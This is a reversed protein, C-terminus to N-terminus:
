RAYWLSRLSRILALAALTGFRACRAYWLSRLSRVLAFRAFAFRAFAFRAFAFRAFAFRAFAFRAFAFATLTCVKVFRNGTSPPTHPRPSKRYSAPNREDNSDSTYARHFW